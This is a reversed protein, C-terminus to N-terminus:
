PIAVSFNDYFTTNASTAFTRIGADNGSAISTDTLTIAPSAENNFYISIASGKVIMRISYFTNFQLPRSASALQTTTGKVTKFLALNGQEIGLRVRYFDNESSWRAMLACANGQSNIMCDVSVDQDPGISTTAVTAIPLNKGNMNAMQNNLIGFDPLYENWNTGLSSSNARNFNDSFIVGKASVSIQLQATGQAGQNDTVTLIANFTHPSSYVHDVIAGTSGLGDGFSWNYSRVVGDPDFSQSGDFHVTLPAIGSTPNALFKATPPKNPIATSNSYVTLRDYKVGANYNEIGPIGSLIRSSSSDSYSIIPASNLLVQLNVPNSGSVKLKLNYSQGAIIGASASKLFTWVGGNKRYLNVTGNTAIQAAYLDSTFNAANGRVVIGSYLSGAPVILVSEVTYDNTGLIKTIGAFNASGESLANKGDTSFGGASVNWNSGLGGTRNFEDTFLGATVSINISSSGKAGSDDTVTLTATYNGTQNYTHDTTSCHADSCAAKNDSTGDGFDWHYFKVDGDPDFSASADFHVPLPVAGAVSSSQDKAVPPINGIKVVFADDAGGDKDVPQYSGSTTPFSSSDTFGTIYASGSTDVAISFGINTGSGNSGSGGFYTSYGLKTGDANLKTIFVDQCPYKDPNGCIGGSHTPQVAKVIPFDASTTDGVIYANGASDLAIHDGADQLSGGLFTSYILTTGSSNMKAVFADTCSQPRDLTGCNGAGLSKQFAQPTIPFDSSITGGTIYSNGAADIAIATIADTTGGGIYTSFILATGLSNVKTVFGDMGGHNTTQFAGPTIPFGTSETYGSVYSNGQGDVAIGSASDDGVSGLYTSFILATGTANLKTVFVDFCPGSHSCVGGGPTSQFAGSTKPFNTSNTSGAIYANGSGDVALTSGSTDYGDGGLYTSYILGNGAANIKTIFVDRDGHNTVQFAGPTTPFDTSETGGVVYINGSADVTIGTGIDVKGNGGLYTSYLIANGAANIKTVFADYYAGFPRVSNLTPFDNSATFGTVYVNGSTDVAIATGYDNNTGGLYTSYSLVPDIILPRNSDYPGIEFGIKNKGKLAYRGSVRTKQGGIEQYIKPQNFRFTKSRKTQLLLSGESDIELRDAGQFALQITKPDANPKVIFDYELERQNGYYILDIGPYIENYKVKGYTPIDKNWKAPDGGIFYNSRGPLQDQGSIISHSNAGVLKMRIAVPELKKDRKTPEQGTPKVENRLALVAETATLYLNYGEGRSIYKVRSDTQGHNAEFSLPLKGYSLSIQQRDAGETLSHNPDIPIAAYASQCKVTFILVVSIHFIIKMAM